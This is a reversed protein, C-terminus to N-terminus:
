KATRKFVSTGGESIMEWTDADSKKMKWVLSTGPWWTEWTKDDLQSWLFNVPRGDKDFCWNTVRRSGEDWGM